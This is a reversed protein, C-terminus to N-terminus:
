VSPRSARSFRIRRTVRGDMESGDRAAPVCREGTCQTTSLCPPRTEPRCDNKGSAVSASAHRSTTASAARLISFRGAREVDHGDLASTGCVVEWSDNTPVAMAGWHGVAVVPGIVRWAPRAARRWKCCGPIHSRPHSPTLEAPVVALAERPSGLVARQISRGKRACSGAGSRMGASSSLRNGQFPCHVPTVSSRSGCRHQLGARPRRRFRVGNGFRRGCGAPAVLRIWSGLM